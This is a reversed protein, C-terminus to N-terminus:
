GRHRTMWARSCLSNKARRSFAKLINVARHRTTTLIRIVEHGRTRRGRSRPRRTPTHGTEVPLLTPCLAACGLIDRVGLPPSPCPTRSRLALALLRLLLFAVKVCSAACRPRVDCCKAVPGQPKPPTAAAIPMPLLGFPSLTVLLAHNHSSRWREEAEVVRRGGLFDPHTCGIPPPDHNLSM